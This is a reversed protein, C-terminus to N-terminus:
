GNPIVSIKFDFKSLEILILYSYYGKLNHFNVPFKKTIQLNVNCSYHASGRYNGFIHCHDRVKNDDLSILKGCIYCINSRELEENKEVTMVLNKNFYKKIVSRCYRYEKFICKIFKFVANKGRYMLRNFDKIYVYHSTFNNSILLLDISDNFIQDSLHVPYVVKNEYCFANVCTKNLVEIKSYYKKSVPFDVDSYNLKEVIERNKQTIRHFKVGNLNLRRVHCWLFRRNDDNKFNILGKMPHSSENPM